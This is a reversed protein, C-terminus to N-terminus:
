WCEQASSRVKWARRAILRIRMDVMMGATCATISSKTSRSTSRPSWTAAYRSPCSIRSVQDPRASALVSSRHIAVGQEHAKRAAFAYDGSGDVQEGLSASDVM